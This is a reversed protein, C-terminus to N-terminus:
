REIIDPYKDNKIIPAENPNYNAKAKEELWAKVKDYQYAADIIGEDTSDKNKIISSLINLDTCKFHGNNKVNNYLKWKYWTCVRPLRQM